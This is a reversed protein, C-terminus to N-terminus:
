KEYSLNNSSTCYPMFRFEKELIKPVNDFPIEFPLVLEYKPLTHSAKPM